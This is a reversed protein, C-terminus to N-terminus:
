GALQQHRINSVLCQQTDQAAPLLTGQAEGPDGLHKGITKDLCNMVAELDGEEEIESIEEWSSARLQAVFKGYIRQLM